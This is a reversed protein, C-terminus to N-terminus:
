ELPRLDCGLVEEFTKIAKLSDLIGKEIYTNLAVVLNSKAASSMLAVKERIENPSWSCIEIYDSPEVLNKYYHTIYLAKYIDATTYKEAHEDAFGVIIIWQNEFFAIDSAKMDRLEGFSMPQVSGCRPWSTKAGSRKNTYGLQGFVNSKVNIVAHDDIKVAGDSVKKLNIKETDDFEMVDSLMEAVEPSPKKTTKKTSM